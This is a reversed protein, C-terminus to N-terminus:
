SGKGFASTEFQQFFFELRRRSKDDRADSIELLKIQRFLDPCVFLYAPDALKHTRAIHLLWRQVGRPIGHLVALDYFLLRPRRRRRLINAVEWVVILALIGALAAVVGYIFKDLSQSVHTHFSDGLGQPTLQAFINM